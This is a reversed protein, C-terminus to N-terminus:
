RPPIKIHLPNSAVRHPMDSWFPSHIARRLDFRSDARLDGPTVLDAKDGRQPHARRHRLAERLDPYALALRRVANVRRHQPVPELGADGFVECLWARRRFEDPVAEHHDVVPPQPDSLHRVSFLLPSGQGLSLGAGLLARVVFEACSVRAVGDAFLNAQRGMRLHLRPWRRRLYDGGLRSETLIVGMVVLGATPFTPRSRVLAAVARFLGHEDIPPPRLLYARRLWRKSLEVELDVLRLGGGREAMNLPGDNAEIGLNGGLCLIVHSVDSRVAFQIALSLPTWWGVLLLDGPLPQGESALEAWSM